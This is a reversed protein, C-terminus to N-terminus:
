KPSEEEGTREGTTFTYGGPPDLRAMPPPLHRRYHSCAPFDHPVTAYYPTVAIGQPTVQTLVRLEFRCQGPRSQTMDVAGPPVPLANWHACSECCVEPTARVDAANLSVSQLAAAIKHNM